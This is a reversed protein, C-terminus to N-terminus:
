CSRYYRERKEFSDLDLEKLLSRLKIPGIKCDSYEKAQLISLLKFFSCPGHTSIAYCVRKASESLIPKSIYESSFSFSPSPQNIAPIEVGKINSQKAIKQLKYDIFDVCDAITSFARIILNLQLSEYVQYLDPQFDTIFLTRQEDSLRKNEAILFGWGASSIMEVQKMEFIVYQMNTDHSHIISRLQPITSQLMNGCFRFILVSYPALQDSIKVSFESSYQKSSANASNNVSDISNQASHVRDPKDTEDENRNIQIM